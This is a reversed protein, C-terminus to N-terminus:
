PALLVSLSLVRVFSGQAQWEVLLDRAEELSRAAIAVRHPGEIVEAGHDHEDHPRGESCAKCLIRISTSWDEAALERASALEVLAEVQGVADALEVEALCTSFPSPELLGLCDLVAVERDGVKRYGNAAGDNLVLDGWRFGSEPLPISQVLARAPDIRQCWAVEAVGDPQLRVPHTGCPYQISGEGDPIPIGCSSWARRADDWRGLATAAIGLNWWGAEDTPDLESARRNWEFSREWDGCYKYLLGLNYAPVSWEPDISCALEYERIAEATRGEERLRGGRENHKSARGRKGTQSFPNKM